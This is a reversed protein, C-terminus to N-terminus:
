GYKVAIGWVIDAIDESKDIALELFDYIEKWKIVEIPNKENQFLDGLAREFLRDGQNEFTHIQICLEFLGNVDKLGEIKQIAMIAASTARELLAVMEKFDDRISDIKFLFIRESLAHVIDILDDIKKALQHIDERDIPTIFTKNLKVMIEHVILDCEHELDRIFQLHHDTMEGSDIWTKFYRVGEQAKISLKILLDYFVNGQPLLSFRM